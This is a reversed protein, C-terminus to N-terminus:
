CRVTGDTLLTCTHVSDVAIAKSTPPPRRATALNATTTGVGAIVMASDALGCTHDNGAVVQTFEIGQPAPPENFTAATARPVRIPLTSPVAFAALVLTILLLASCVVPHRM